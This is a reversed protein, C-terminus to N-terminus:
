GPEAQSTATLQRTGRALVIRGVFACAVYTLDLEWRPADAVIISIKKPM